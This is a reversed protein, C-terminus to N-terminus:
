RYVFNRNVYNGWGKDTFRVCDCAVGLQLGTTNLWYWPVMSMGIFCLGDLREYKDGVFNRHMGTKRIRRERGIPGNGKEEM